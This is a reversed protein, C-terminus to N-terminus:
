RTRFPRVGRFGIANSAFGPGFSEVQEFMYAPDLWSGGVVPKRQPADGRLWERVNGAMDAAGFPSLGAPFSGVPRTDVLGFNARWEIGAQDDGWPFLRGDGGLAARRWQALTPLEKGAWRLYAVAEYWTVGVVPHDAKGEPHIGGSWGRPAQIGTRDVLRGLAQDRPLSDGEIVMFAPWFAANRYGGDGMFELYERNTVEHRDILFAAEVREGAGARGPPVGVMGEAGPLAPVLGAEVTTTSDAHIRATLSLANYDPHDIEVLYEGTPLGEISEGEVALAEGPSGPEGAEGAGDIARAVIRADDPDVLVRLTGTARASATEAARDPVVVGTAGGFTLWAAAVVGWLAFALVGSVFANRWTFVDHLRGHPRAQATEPPAAAEEDSDTMQLDDLLHLDPETLRPAGEQVLATAVVIPLGIVFLVIALGPLWDPLALGEVLALIVEYGLWAGVLYVALVQWVSRRHIERILRRLRM